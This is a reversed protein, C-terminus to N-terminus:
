RRLLGRAGPTWEAAYVHFERADIAIAEAAFEDTIAPDGFPHVGMGVAASGPRADRGFIRDGGASSDRGATAGGVTRASSGTVPLCRDDDM